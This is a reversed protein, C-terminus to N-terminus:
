VSDHSIEEITMYSVYEANSATDELMFHFRQDIALDDATEILLRYQRNGRSPDDLDWADIELDLNLETDSSYTNKWVEV